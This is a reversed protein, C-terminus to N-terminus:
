SGCWSAPGYTTAWPSMRYGGTPKHNNTGKVTRGANRHHAIGAASVTQAIARTRGRGATQGSM